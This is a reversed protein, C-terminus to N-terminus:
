SHQYNPADRNIDAGPDDVQVDKPNIGEGIIEIRGEDFYETSGTKGDTANVKPSIGYQSCGFIYTIKSVIIGKFGTIKDQAEKGLNEM